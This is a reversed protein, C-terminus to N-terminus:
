QMEGQFRVSSSAIHSLSQKEQQGGGPWWRGPTWGQRRAEEAPWVALVISEGSGDGEGRSNGAMPLGAVWFELGAVEVVVGAEGTAAGGGVV